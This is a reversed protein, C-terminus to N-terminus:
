EELELPIVRRDDSYMLNTYLVIQGLNDVEVSCELLETAAEFCAEVDLDHKFAHLIKLQVESLM